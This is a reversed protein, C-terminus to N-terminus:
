EANGKGEGEQIEIIFAVLHSLGLTYEESNSTFIFVSYTAHEVFCRWSLYYQSNARFIFVIKHYVVFFWVKVVKLYFLSRLDHGEPFM